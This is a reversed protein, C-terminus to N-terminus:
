ERKLALVLMSPTIGIKEFEYLDIGEVTIGARRMRQLSTRYRVDAIVHREGLCIVGAASGEGRELVITELGAFPAPDVAGAALVVTKPGVAAVVSQLSPVGPALAVEVVDFGHARAVAGFGTRGIANGRTGIGVFATSGALVVDTGDLLGPAAVHGAIPIDLSSFEAAIREGERRRSMATPRMIMAGSEFIAAADAVAISRPDEDGAALVTVDTGFYRLTRVLTDHQELARALIAGPESNLPTVREISAGPRVVVASRLGGTPTGILRPGFHVSPRTM